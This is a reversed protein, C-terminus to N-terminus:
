PTPRRKLLILGTKSEYVKSFGEPIHAPANIRTADVLVYPASSSNQLLNWPIMGYRAQVWNRDDDLTQPRGNLIGAPMYGVDGRWYGAKMLEDRIFRLRDEWVVVDDAERPKVWRLTQNLQVLNLFSVFVLLASVLLRVGAIM